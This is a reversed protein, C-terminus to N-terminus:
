PGNAFNENNRILNGGLANKIYNYLIPDVTTSSPAQLNDNFLSGAKLIHCNLHNLKPLTLVQSQLFHHTINYKHIHTNTHTNPAEPETMTMLLEHFASTVPLWQTLKHYEKKPQVKSEWKMPLFFLLRIIAIIFIIIMAALKVSHKGLALSCVLYVCLYVCVKM